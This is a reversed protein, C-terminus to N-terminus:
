QSDRDLADSDQASAAAARGHLSIATTEQDGTEALSAAVRAPYVFVELDPLSGLHLELLSRVKDWPLGGNGCGLAPMALTYIGLRDYNAVIWKLGSEIDELKSPARWHHKTPFNLIQSEENEWFWPEGMKMDGALCRAVYDHFMAPYRRKFELAVGKGMVGVCNVTNTLVQARSDFLCGQVYTIM